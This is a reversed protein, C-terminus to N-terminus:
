TGLRTLMAEEFSLIPANGRTSIYKMDRLEKKQTDWFPFPREDRGLCRCAFVMYNCIASSRQSYWQQFYPDAFKKVAPTNRTRDGSRIANLAKGISPRRACVM